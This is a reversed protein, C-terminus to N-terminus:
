GIFASATRELYLVFLSLMFNIILLFLHRLIQHTSCVKVDHLYGVVLKDKHVCQAWDLVDRPHEEILTTWKEESLDNVDICIM